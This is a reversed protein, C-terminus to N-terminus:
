EQGSLSEFAGCRLAQEFETAAIPKSVVYGQLVDCRLRRLRALQEATESGEAVTRLFSDLM